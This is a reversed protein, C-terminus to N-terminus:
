AHTVPVLCMTTVGATPACVPCHKICLAHPGIGACDRNTTCPRCAGGVSCFPKGTNDNACFGTVGVPEDPCPMPLPAACVTDSETCGFSRRKRQKGPVPAASAPAMIGLGLGALTRGVTRRSHLQRTWRDFRTPDM